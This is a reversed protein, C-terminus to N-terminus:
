QVSFFFRVNPVLQYEKSPLIINDTLDVGSHSNTIGSEIPPSMNLSTHLYGLLYLRFRMFVIAMAFWFPPTPLVVEVRLM